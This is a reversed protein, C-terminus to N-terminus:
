PEDDNVDDVVLERLEDSRAWDIGSGVVVAGIVNKMIRWRSRQLRIEEELNDLQDRLEPDKVDEIGEAKNDEVLSLLTSTLGRNRNSTIIIDRQAESVSNLTSDLSSSINAHAMSLVDRRNVLPFLVTANIGSHVAKLIPDTMLVNEIIQTRLSYTAKAGLVGKEARRLQEETRNSESVENVSVPQFTKQAKWLSCELELEQLKDYLDLVHQEQESLSAVDCQNNQILEEYLVKENQHDGSGHLSLDGIADLAAM